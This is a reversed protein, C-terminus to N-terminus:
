KQWCLPFILNSGLVRRRSRQNATDPENEQRTRLRLNIVADDTILSRAHSKNILSSWTIIEASNGRYANVSLCNPTMLRTQCASRPLPLRTPTSLVLALM